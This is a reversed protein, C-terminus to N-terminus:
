NNSDIPTKRKKCEQFLCEGLAGNSDIAIGGFLWLTNLSDVWSSAHHRGGPITSTTEQRFGSPYVGEFLNHAAHFFFFFSAFFKGRQDVTSPGFGSWTNTSIDYSWMDNM